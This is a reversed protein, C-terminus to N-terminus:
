DPTKNYTAISFYAVLGTLELMVFAMVSGRGLRILKEIRQSSSKNTRQM